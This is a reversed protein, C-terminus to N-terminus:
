HTRGCASLRRTAESPLPDVGDAHRDQEQASM